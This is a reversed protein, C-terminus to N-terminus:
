FNNIKGIARTDNRSKRHDFRVTRLSFQDSVVKYRGVKVFLLFMDDNSNCFALM